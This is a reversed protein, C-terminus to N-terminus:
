LYRNGLFLAKFSPTVFKVRHDQCIITKTSKCLQLKVSQLIRSAKAKTIFYDNFSWISLTAPPKGFICKVSNGNFLKVASSFGVSERGKNSFHNSYFHPSTMIGGGVYQYNLSSMFEKLAFLQLAKTDIIDEPLWESENTRM